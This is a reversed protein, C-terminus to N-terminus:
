LINFSSKEIKIFIASNLTKLQKFQIPKLQAAACTLLLYHHISEASTNLLHGFSYLVHDKSSQTFHILEWFLLKPCFTQKFCFQM